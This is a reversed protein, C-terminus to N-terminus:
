RAADTLPVILVPRTTNHVVGYSVSGLLTSKVGSLGRSGLVITAAEREEAVQLIAEWTTTTERQVAPGLARHAVPEVEFGAERALEAGEAALAEAHAKTGGDIKEIVDEVVEFSGGVPHRLAFPAVSEWVTLAVAPGGRLVEGARRVAQKAHDSGDFCLVNPAPSPVPRLRYVTRPVAPSATGM